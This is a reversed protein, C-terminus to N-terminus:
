SACAHEAVLKNQYKPIIFFCHLSLEFCDQFYSLVKHLEYSSVGAWFYMVPEEQWGDRTQDPKRLSMTIDKWWSGISTKLCFNLAPVDQYKPDERNFEVIGRPHAQCKTPGYSDAIEMSFNQVVNNKHYSQQAYVAIPAGLLSLFKSHPHPHLYLDPSTVSAGMLALPTSTHSHIADPSCLPVTPIYSQKLTAEMQWHHVHVPNIPIINVETTLKLWKRSSKSEGKMLSILVQWSIEANGCTHSHHLAQLTLTLKWQQYPLRETNHLNAPNGLGTPMYCHKKLDNDTVEHSYTFSQFFM